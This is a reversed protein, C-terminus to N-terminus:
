FFKRNGGGSDCAVGYVLCGISEYTFLVFLFQRLIENGDLSGKNYFFDGNHVAGSMLKYRWQNCYVNVIEKKNDDKNKPFVVKQLEKINFEEEVFGIIENNRSNYAIGNKFKIEDFILQGILARRNNTKDLFLEHQLTSYINGDGGEKCKLPAKYKKLTAPHPLVATGSQSLLKYAGASKLYIGLALNITESSYRIRSKKNDLKIGM